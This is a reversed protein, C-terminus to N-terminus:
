CFSKENIKREGYVFTDKKNVSAALKSNKRLENNASVKNGFFFSISINIFTIIFM